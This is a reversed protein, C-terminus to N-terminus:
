LDAPSDPRRIWAAPFCVGQCDEYLCAAPRTATEREVRQKEADVVLPRATTEPTTHRPM